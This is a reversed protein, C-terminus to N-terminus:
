FWLAKVSFYLIVIIGLIIRYYGFAKFDHKRIYGMLFKIAFLSVVFAVVVGVILIGVESGGLVVTGSAVNGIYKVIKILSAGFMVPIALFFSFEAAIDRSTGVIIGGLITSGSRSTGPILSLVQFCGIQLATKYSLQNLSTIAPHKRRNELVIFLIGYVILAISVVVPNMLKEEIIDNLLVGIVGAPIVGVIVKLWLDITQKKQKVSKRPSFPNLKHFYLFVVAMISGLQIVVLFMNWFEPTVPLKIFEDALIMHGTSSVPLWETIGQVIGIIMAKIFDLFQM